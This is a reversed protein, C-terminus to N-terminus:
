DRRPPSRAPRELILHTGSWRDHWCRGDRDLLGWWFGLGAPLASIVAAFFRGFARKLGVPRGAPGVVRLRWARMGLTQGGHTWFWVFFVASIGILSLEFWWTGPVIARGGRAFLVLLTFVFLVAALLLLDYALAALRRALGPHQRREPPPGFQSPPSL